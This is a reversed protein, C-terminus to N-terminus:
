TDSTEVEKEHNKCAKQNRKAQWFVNESIHRKEMNMYHHFYPLDFTKYEGHRSLVKEPTLDDHLGSKLEKLLLPKAPHSPPQCGKFGLTKIWSSNKHWNRPGASGM